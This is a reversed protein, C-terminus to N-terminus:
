PLVDRCWAEPRDEAAWATPLHESRSALANAVESFLDGCTTFGDMSVAAVVVELHVPGSRSWPDTFGFRRASSAILSELDDPLDEAVLGVHIDSLRGASIWSTFSSVVAAEFRQAALAATPISTTERIRYANVLKAVVLTHEGHGLCRMIVHCLDPESAVTDSVTPAHSVSGM